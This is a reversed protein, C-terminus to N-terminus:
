VSQSYVRIFLCVLLYVCPMIVLSAGFIRGGFINPRFHGLVYHETEASPTFLGFIICRDNKNKIFFYFLFYVFFVFFNIFSM